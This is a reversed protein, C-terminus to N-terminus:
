SSIKEVLTSLLSKAEKGDKMKNAPISLVDKLTAIDQTNMLIANKTRIQEDPNTLSPSLYQEQLTKLNEESKNIKDQIEQLFINWLPDNTLHEAEVSAQEILTLHSIKSENEGSGIIKDVEEKTYKM